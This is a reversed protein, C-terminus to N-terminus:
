GDWQITHLPFKRRIHLSHLNIVGQERCAAEYKGYFVAFEERSLQEPFTNTRRDHTDIFFKMKNM